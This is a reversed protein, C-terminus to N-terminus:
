RTSLSLLFAIVNRASQSVIVVAVLLGSLRRKYMRAQLQHPTLLLLWRIWRTNRVVLSRRHAQIVVNAFEGLVSATEVNLFTDFLRGSASNIGVIRCFLGWM